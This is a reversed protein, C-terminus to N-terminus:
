ESRCGGPNAPPKRRRRRTRGATRGSGLIPTEIGAEGALERATAEDLGKALQYLQFFTGGRHGRCGSYMCRFTSRATDIVLSRIMEERHIPCYSRLTSGKQEVGNTKYGVLFLVSEASLMRNIKEITDSLANTM